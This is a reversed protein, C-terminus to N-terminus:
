AGSIYRLSSLPKPVITCFYLQVMVVRGMQEISGMEELSDFIQTYYGQSVNAARYAEVKSGEFRLTDGNDLPAARAELEGYVSLMHHFIAPTLKSM